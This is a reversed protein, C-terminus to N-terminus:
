GRLLASLAVRADGRQKWIFGRAVKGIFGDFVSSDFLPTSIASSYLGINGDPLMYNSAKCYFLECMLPNAYHTDVLRLRFSLNYM